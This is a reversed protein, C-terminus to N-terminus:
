MQGDGAQFKTFIVDAIHRLQRKWEELSELESEDQGFDYAGDSIRQAKGLCMLGIANWQGRTFRTQECDELQDFPHFVLSRIEEWDSDSLGDVSHEPLMSMVNM